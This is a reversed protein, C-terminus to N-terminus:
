YDPEEYYREELYKYKIWGKREVWIWISFNIDKDIAKEINYLKDLRKM